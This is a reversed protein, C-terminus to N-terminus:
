SAKNRNFLGSFISIINKKEVPAEDTLQEQNNSVSARQISDLLVSRAMELTLLLSKEQAPNVGDPFFVIALGMRDIGDFYPFIMEVKKDSLENSAWTPLEVDQWFASPDSKDSLSRCLWTTMTKNYYFDFVTQDKKTENWWEKLDLPIPFDGLQALSDFAAIHVKEAAKYSYFLPYAKYQSILEESIMKYFEIIKSDKQYIFNLVEVGFEFGRTDVEIVKFSGSDESDSLAHLQGKDRESSEESSGNRAIYDFEEKLKRYDITIEGANNKPPGESFEEPRRNAKKAENNNSAKANTLNDWSHEANKKAEGGRYFTDIKDVKGNHANKEKDGPGQDTQGLKKFAMHADPEEMRTRTQAANEDLLQLGSAKRQQGDSDDDLTPDCQEDSPAVIAAELSLETQAKHKNDEDKQYDSKKENSADDADELLGKMKAQDIDEAEDSDENKVKPALNYIELDSLNNSSDNNIEGVMNTNIKDVECDNAQPESDIVDVLGKRSKTTEEEDEELRQRKKEEAAPLLDLEFQKERQYLDSNDYEKKEETLDEELELDTNSVKGKYHGGLDEAQEAMKRKAAEFLEELEDFEKKKASAKEAETLDKEKKPADDAAELDLSLNNTKNLSNDDDEQEYRNSQKKGPDSSPSLDLETQKKKPLGEDADSEEYNSKKTRLDSEDEIEQYNSKKKGRYYLDINASDDSDIKETDSEDELSTIEKKRKSKWNTEISEEQYNNKGKLSGGEDSPAEGKDKNKLREESLYNLTEEKKEEENKELLGSTAASQNQDLMSKVVQDKDEQASSSKISRLLLKVKYLLTKPPSNELVSETLGIKVFKILTKTPIEKPTLLIIKSHTKAIIFRNEQLFTACKKANSFVILSQGASGVFQSLEKYDDILSIEVNEDVAIGNLVENLKQLPESMPPVIVLQKKNEM